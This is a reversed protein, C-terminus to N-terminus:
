KFGPSVHPTGCGNIWQSHGHGDTGLKSFIVAVTPSFLNTWADQMTGAAATFFASLWPTWEFYRMQIAVRCIRSILIQRSETTFTMVSM